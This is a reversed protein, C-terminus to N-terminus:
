HLTKSTRFSNRSNEHQKFILVRKKQTSYYFCIWISNLNLKVFIPTVAWVCCGTIWEPKVCVCVCLSVCNWDTSPIFGASCTRSITASRLIVLLAEISNRHNCNDNVVCSVGAEGCLCMSYLMLHAGRVCLQRMSVCMCLRNEHSLVLFYCTLSLLTRVKPALMQTATNVVVKPISGPPSLFLSFKLFLRGPFCINLPLLANTSQGKPDAQSLYIFICSNPGTAKIFYGTLISVARM